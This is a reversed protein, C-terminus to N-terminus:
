TLPVLFFRDENNNIEEISDGRSSSSERAAGDVAAAEATVTHTESIIALVLSATSKNGKTALFIGIGTRKLLWCWWEVMAVMM